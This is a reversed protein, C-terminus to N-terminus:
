FNKAMFEEKTMKPANKEAEKQEFSAFFANRSGPTREAMDFANASIDGRFSNVKEFFDDKTTDVREAERVYEEYIKKVAEFPMKMGVAILAIFEQQTDVYEIHQFIEYPAGLRDRVGKYSGDIFQQSSPMINAIVGLRTMGGADSEVSKTEDLGDKIIDNFQDQSKIKDNVPIFEVSKYGTTTELKYLDVDDINQSGEVIMSGNCVCIRRAVEDNAM